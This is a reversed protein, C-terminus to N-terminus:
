QVEASVFFLVEREQVDSQFTIVGNETSWTIPETSTPQDFEQQLEYQIQRIDNALQRTQQLYQISDALATSDPSAQLSDLLQIGSPRLIRWRGTISEVRNEANTSFSLKDITILQRAETGSGLVFAGTKDCNISYSQDDDNFEVSPMSENVMLSDGLIIFHECIRAGSSFIFDDLPDSCGVFLISLAILLHKYSM